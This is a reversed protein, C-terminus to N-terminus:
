QVPPVDCGVQAARGLPSWPVRRSLGALLQLDRGSHGGAAAPLRDRFPSAERAGCPGQLETQAPDDRRGLGGDVCDHLPIRTHWDRAEHSGSQERGARLRRDPRHHRAQVRVGREARHDSEARQARALPVVGPLVTGSSRRSGPHLTGHAPGSVALHVLVPFAPAGGLGDKIDIKMRITKEIRHGHIGSSDVLGNPITGGTSPTMDTLTMTLPPVVGFNAGAEVFLPSGCSSIVEAAQAGRTANASVPIPVPAKAESSAPGFSHGPGSSESGIKAGPTRPNAPTLSDRSTDRSERAEVPRLLPLEEREGQDFWLTGDEDMYLPLIDLLGAPAFRPVPAQAAGEPKLLIWQALITDTLTPTIQVKGQATLQLTVLASGDYGSTTAAPTVFTVAGTDGSAPTVAFNVNAGSIPYGRPDLFVTATTVTKSVTLTNYNGIFPIAREGSAAAAVSTLSLAARYAGSGKLTAARLYYTGTLPLVAGTLSANYDVGPQDDDRRLNDYILGDPAIIELQPDLSSPDEWPKATDVRTVSADIVTGATGFFYFTNYDVFFGTSDGGEAFSGTITQGPLIRNAMNHQTPPVVQSTWAPPDVRLWKGSLSLTGTSTRSRALYYGTSLSPLSFALTGGSGFSAPRVTQPCTGTSLNCLPTSFTTDSLNYVPGSLAVSMTADFGTGYLVLSPEGPLAVGPALGLLNPGAANVTFLYLPSQGNQVYCNGNPRAVLSQLRYHGPTLQVNGAAKPTWVRNTTDFGDGLPGAAQTVPVATYLGSGTPNEQELVWSYRDLTQFVTSSISPPSGTVFDTLGTVTPFLPNGPAPCSRNPVLTIARWACSGPMLGACADGPDMVSPQPSGAVTVVLRMQPTSPTLTVHQPAPPLVITGGSNAPDYPVWRYDLAQNNITQAWGNFAVPASAPYTFSGPDAVPATIHPVLVTLMAQKITSGSTATIIASTFGSLDPISIAFTVSATNALVTVTQPIVVGPWSSSLNVTVSNPVTTAMTVIGTASGTNGSVTLSPVTLSALLPASTLTLKATHAVSSVVAKITVYSTTYVQKPTVTFTKATTGAAVTVSGPVTALYTNSSSLTVATGGAPAPAPLTVTGTVPSVGSVTVPNLALTAAPAAVTITGSDTSTLGAKVAHIKATGAVNGTLTASGIDPSLRGIKKAGIEVFWIKGDPGSAMDGFSSSTPPAFDSIAGGPTIRGIKGGQNEIFWLNGDFGPTIYRPHTAFFGVPFETVAGTPTMRAIKNAAEETFWINGDVGPAIGVGSGTGPILFETVVGAPTIRGIQGRLNETFWLNGDPGTTIDFPDGGGTSIPFLTETTPLQIRGIKNTTGMFQNAEGAFWVNGDPGTTLGWTNYGSAFYNYVGGGQGVRLGSGTGSLFISGDPAMHTSLPIDCGGNCCRNLYDSVFGDPYINGIFVCSLSSTEGFWLRDGLGNGISWPTRDGPVPFEAFGEGQLLDGVVVGGTIGTLSWSDPVVSGVYNNNADRTIAWAKLTSGAALSQASVAAGTGDAATEVIIKTAAGARIDFAVSTASTLGASTATLTYGRGFKNISLTSFTAVGAVAAVTKTGALTGGGPNAGIAVTVSATSTLVNGNADQIQVTLAPTFTTGAM